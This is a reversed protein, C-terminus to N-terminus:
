RPTRVKMVLLQDICMAAQSHVVNSESGLLAVIGPFAALVDPKPIQARFTMTFKLADALLVQSQAVWPLVHEAPASAFPLLVASAATTPSCSCRVLMCKVHM